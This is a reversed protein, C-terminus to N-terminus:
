GSGSGISTTRLLMAALKSCSLRSTGANRRFRPSIMHIRRANPGLPVLAHADKPLSAACQPRFHAFDKRESLTTM